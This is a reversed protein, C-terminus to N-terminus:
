KKIISVKVLTEIENKKPGHSGSHSVSPIEFTVEFYKQKKMKLLVNVLMKM